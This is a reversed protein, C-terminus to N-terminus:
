KTSLPFHLIFESGQGKESRLEITGRMRDVLTKVIALGLGNSTEGGTPRSSLRKFKQFLDAKDKESFGLGQDKISIWITNGSRGAAVEVTSNRNSFKIRSLYDADLYVEENEIRTISLHIDKAEASPQFANVKKLLFDSIDFTSYNPIVNEELM